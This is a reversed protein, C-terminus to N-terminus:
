IWGEGQRQGFVPSPMAPWLRKLSKRRDVEKGDKEGQGVPVRHMSGVSGGGASDTRRPPPRLARPQFDPSTPSSMSVIKTQFTPYSGERDAFNVSRESRLASTAIISTSSSGEATSAYPPPPAFWHSQRGGAAEEWKGKSAGAATADDITPMRETMPIDEEVTRSKEEGRQRKRRSILLLERLRKREKEKKEGEEMLRPADKQPRVRDLGLVKELRLIM